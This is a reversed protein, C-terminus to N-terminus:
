SGVGVCYWEQAWLSNACNEGGSGLVPNWTYLQTPSINNRQAFVSCGDGSQAQAFKNCSSSIGSQTPGPATVPTSPPKVGVCYYEDGWFQTQCNAGGSGLVSNWAYLQDTTIGNTKAFNNCNDGQPAKAYKNCSSIIGSQTPGPATVQSPPATTTPISTVGGSTSTGICYYESAWFQLSCNGGSSGLVPNLLYLQAPSIGHGKAFDVCNDGDHVMAYNNCNAPIGDQTATPAGPGASAPDTILSTVTTTPTVIGGAGGRQQNGANASEGLPPTALHYNGGPPRTCIYQGPTLSDCLGLINPNWNMFQITTANGPVSLALSDCTDGSQVQKLGCGKPVCISGSIACTDSDTLAQLDGTTVGYKTSIANCGVPASASSLTQGSCTPAAPPSSTPSSATTPIPDYTPLARVTIDPISTSCVNAIDQLQNVLYESHDTDSLYTSTVRNYLMRIFCNSCLIDDSYLNAMRQSAQDFDTINGSCAPDSPNAVCDPRVIDSGVWDQSEILCWTDDTESGMCAINLNDIYRDSITTAPILKGYAPLYQGFCADQIDNSWNQADTSCNSSCIDTVNDEEWWYNDLSGVMSFLDQDCDPVTENLANLCDISINYAAALKTPNVPPYLNFAYGVGVSTALAVICPFTWM